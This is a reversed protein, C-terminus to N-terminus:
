FNTKYLRLNNMDKVLELQPFKAVAKQTEGYRPYWDDFLIYEVGLWKCLEIDKIISQEDHAGDLFCLDVSHAFAGQELYHRELYKFKSDFLNKLYLAAYKTEWKDSIDTSLLQFIPLSLWISAGIGINFGIELVTSAKSIALAEKFYKIIHPGSSYPIEVNYRDMYNGKFGERTPLGVICMNYFEVDEPSAYLLEEDTLEHSM